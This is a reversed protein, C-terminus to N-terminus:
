RPWWSSWPHRKPEDGDPNDCQGGSHRRGRGDRRECGVSGTHLRRGSRGQQVSVAAATRLLPPACRVAFEIIRQGIQRSVGRQCVGFMHKGVQMGHARRCAELQSGIADRREYRDIGYGQAIRLLQLGGQFFKTQLSCRDVGVVDAAPQRYRLQLGRGRASFNV